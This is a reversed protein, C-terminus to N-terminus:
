PQGGDTGKMCDIASVGAIAVPSCENAEVLSALFEDAPSLPVLSPDAELQGAYVAHQEYWSGFESDGLPGMPLGGVIYVPEGERSLGVYRAARYREAVAAPLGAPWDDASMCRMDMVWITKERIEKAKKQKQYQYRNVLKKM